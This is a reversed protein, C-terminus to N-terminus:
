SKSDSVTYNLLYIDDPSIQGDETLIRWDTIESVHYVNVDGCHLSSIYYPENLAEARFTDPGIFGKMRFWIHEKQEKEDPDAFEPDVTLGLKVIASEPDSACARRMYDLRELAMEKMRRTEANTIMCLLNDDMKDALDTIPVYQHQNMAEESPYAFLMCSRTNHGYKRQQLGGNVEQPYRQLAEPWSILTGVLPSNDAFRALLVPEGTEPIEENDLLSCAMTNMVEGIENLNKKGADLIEIEPLGCRALGHTHLWVEDKEDTVAHIQYIYQPSPPTNSAAALHAWQGSFIQEASEDIIAVPEPMLADILKLQFHFSSKHDKGFPMIVMLGFEAKALEENEEDSFIHRRQISKYSDYAPYPSLDVAYTEGHYSITIFPQEGDNESAVSLVEVGEMRSIRRIKEERDFLTDEHDSWPIALMYSKEEYYSLPQESPSALFDTVRRCEELAEKVDSWFEQTEPDDDIMQMVADFYPIAEKERELQMLAYGMRCHWNPDNRGEERTSELLDLSKLLYSEGHNISHGYNAYERALLGTLEYGREAEPVSEMLRIAEEIQGKELLAQVEKIMDNQNKM